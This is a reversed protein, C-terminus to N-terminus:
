HVRLATPSAVDRRRIDIVPALVARHELLYACPSTRYECQLLRAIRFLHNAALHVGAKEAHEAHCELQAAIKQRLLVTGACRFDGDEAVFEPAAMEGAVWRQDALRNGDVALLDGDDADRRFTKM